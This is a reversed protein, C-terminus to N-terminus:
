ECGSGEQGTPGIRGAKVLVMAVKTEFPSGVYGTDNPSSVYRDFADLTDALDNVQARLGDIVFALFAASQGMHPRPLIPNIGESVVYALEEFDDLTADPM